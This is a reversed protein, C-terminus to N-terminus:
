RPEWYEVASIAKVQNMIEERLVTLDNSMGEAKSKVSLKARNTAMEVLCDRVAGFAYVNIFTVTIQHNDPPATGSVFAVHKTNEDVRYVNGTVASTIEFDLVPGSRSSYYHNKHATLTETQVGYDVRDRLITDLEDDTFMGEDEDGIYKRLWGITTTRFEVDFARNLGSADTTVTFAFAGFSVLPDTAGSGSTVTVEFLYTGEKETADSDIFVTATGSLTSGSYHNLYTGSGSYADSESMKQYLNVTYNDDWKNGQDDFVNLGLSFQDNKNVTLSTIAQKLYLDKSYPITSM